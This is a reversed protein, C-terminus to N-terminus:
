ENCILVGEFKILSNSRWLVGVSLGVGIISIGVPLLFSCLLLLLAHYPFVYGFMMSLPNAILLCETIVFASIFTFIGFRLLKSIFIKSSHIVYAILFLSVFGLLVLHLYAIVFPRQLYALEAIVPLASLLQLIIKLFFCAFSVLIAVKITRSEMRMAILDKGLYFLAVCQLLTGVGGVVNVWIPPQHWLTSLLYTPICAANLFYFAKKGHTRKNNMELFRYFLALVAFVFLGNYQFHLYFYIADYYVPTGAKGLAILPGTAFPGVSSILMYFIGANLFLLSTKNKVSKIAKLVVAAFYFGSIISLTSFAISM